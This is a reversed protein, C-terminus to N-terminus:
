IRKPRAPRVSWEQGWHPQWRDALGAESLIAFLNIRQLLKKTVPRKSDPFILSDLLSLVVPGNLVQVLLEAQEETGCPLFYCTDDLLKPRGAVPDLRRFRPKKHLGSIGVKFPAFTYDGVGFMAFPPRGRYISSKRGTFVERHQQLYAWLRPARRELDATDDGLRTQTVIVGLLPRERRSGALDTGKELPYVYEPEVEVVQGLRNRLSGDPSQILEMIASADHKIGQRWQLPCEGDAFAVRNYSAQNAIIPGDGLGLISEPLTAALDSFVEATTAQRGGGVEVRFLCADVAASFWRKADIKWLSARIIPLKDRAISGLITRAVATKCLLAITPREDALERILKIWIAESIDFNSEGTLADIGRHRRHNTRAPGNQGGTAGLGATTVWPLNGVVLLPGSSSWNLDHRLDVGFLDAMTIQVRTPGTPDVISRAIAAHEAQIELGLIEAPVQDRDLIGAIFRGIGCTPELVRSPPEAFGALVDLIASVLAPPTQFDGFNKRQAKRTLALSMRAESCIADGFPNIPSIILRERVSRLFLSLFETFATRERDILDAVSWRGRGQQRIPDNGPVM